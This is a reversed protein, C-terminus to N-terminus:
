ILEKELSEIQQNARIAQQQSENRQQRMTEYDVELTEVRKQLVQSQEATIQNASTTKTLQNYNLEVDRMLSQAKGKYMGIEHQLALNTQETDRLKATITAIQTDREAVQANMEQM